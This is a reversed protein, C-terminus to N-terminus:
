KVSLNRILMATAAPDIADTASLLQGSIKSLAILFYVGNFLRQSRLSLWRIILFQPSGDRSPRWATGEWMQIEFLGGPRVLDARRYHIRM